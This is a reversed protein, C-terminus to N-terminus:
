VSGSQFESGIKSLYQPYADTGSVSWYVKMFVKHVLFSATEYIREM